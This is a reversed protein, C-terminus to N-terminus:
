DVGYPPSISNGNADPESSLVGPFPNEELCVYDSDDFLTIM